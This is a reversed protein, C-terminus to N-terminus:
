MLKLPMYINSRQTYQFSTCHTLSDNNFTSHKFAFVLHNDNPIFDQAVYTENLCQILKILVSISIHHTLSVM